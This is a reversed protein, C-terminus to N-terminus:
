RKRKKKSHLRYDRLSIEICIAAFDLLVKGRKDRLRDKESPDTTEQIQNLLDSAQQSLSDKMRLLAAKTYQDYPRSM